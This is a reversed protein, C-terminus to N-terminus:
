DSEIRPALLFTTSCGDKEASISVPHDIDVDVKVSVDKISAAIASLYTNSYLSRASSEKDVTGVVERICLDGEAAALYVVKEKVYIYIRGNTKSVMRCVDNLYKGPMEFSTCLKLTPPNPEKRMFSVDVAPVKATFRGYSIEIVSKTIVLKISSGVSHLMARKIIEADIGISAPSGEGFETKCECESIVMYVNGTDVLAVRIKGEEIRLLAEQNCNKIINIFTSLTKDGITVITKPENKQPTTKIKDKVVNKKSKTSRTM